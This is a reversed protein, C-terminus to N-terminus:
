RAKKPATFITVPGVSIRIGAATTATKELSTNSGTTWGSFRATATPLKPSSTPTPCASPACAGRTGRGRKRVGGKSRESEGEGAAEEEGEGAEEEEVGPPNPLRIVSDARKGNSLTVQFDFAGPPLMNRVLDEM